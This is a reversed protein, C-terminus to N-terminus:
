SIAQIRSAYASWNTAAKYANVSAAPVYIILNTNTNQFANANALTPPTTAQITVSTLRSCGYFASSGISAVGSGITVSTLSTCRSFVTNGISTVSDPITISTLGSCSAFVENNINTLGNPINISTLSTCAGFAGNDINTVTDPITVSTLGACYYFAYKGISIVGNPININTIDRCGYFLSDNIFRTRTKLTYTTQTNDTLELAVTDAYRIYNEVPFSDCGRFADQGISTVSDPITISTLGTCGKFVSDGIKTTGSPITISTIDREILNKLVEEAQGGGGGTQIQDVLAAYGSILTSDSVTVGKNEISTKLASKANQIRTLEDSITM